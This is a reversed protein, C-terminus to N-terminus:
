RLADRGRTDRNSEMITVVSQYTPPPETDVNSPGVRTASDRADPQSENWITVMPRNAAPGRQPNSLPIKRTSAVVPMAPWASRPAAAANTTGPPVGQFPTPILPAVASIKKAKYRRWLVFLISAILLVGVGGGTVAGVLIPRKDTSHTTEGQTALSTFSPTYTIYDLTFRGGTNIFPAAFSSTFTITLVHSGPGLNPRSQFWPYNAQMLNTSLGFNSLQNEGDITFTAAVPVFLIDYYGYVSISTGTFTMKVSAQEDQTEQFSGGFSTAHYTSPNKDFSSSEPTISLITTNENWNGTRNISPDNGDVILQKGLLYTDVSATIVMFDIIFGQPLSEFTVNHQGDM